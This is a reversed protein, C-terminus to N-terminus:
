IFYDPNEERIKEFIDKTTQVFPYLGMFEKDYLGLSKSIFDTGFRFLDPRDEYLTSILPYVKKLVEDVDIIRRYKKSNVIALLIKEQYDLSIDKDPYKTKTYKELSDKAVERFIIIGEDLLFGRQMLVAKLTRLDNKLVFWHQVKSNGRLASWFEIKKSLIPDGFDIKQSVGILQDLPLYINAGDFKDSNIRDDEIIQEAVQPDWGNDVPYDYQDWYLKIAKINRDLGRLACKRIGEIEKINDAYGSWAQFLVFRFNEESDYIIKDGSIYRSDFEKFVNQLIIILDQDFKYM